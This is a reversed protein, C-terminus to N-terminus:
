KYKYKESIIIINQKAFLHIYNVTTCYTSQVQLTVRAIDYDSSSYFTLKQM